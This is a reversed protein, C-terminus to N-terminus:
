DFLTTQVPAAPKAAPEKPTAVATPEPSHAATPQEPQAAPIPKPHRVQDILRRTPDACNKLVWDLYGAEAQQVQEITEGKHKGQAFVKKGDRVALFGDVSIFDFDPRNFEQPDESTEQQAKFVAITARVDALSNHADDFEKGYYRRYVDTLRRSTRAMEILYADYFRYDDYDIALGERQLNYYLIRADFGNGNYSLIDCGQLFAMMQPYIDRLLVGERELTERTIHHVAQADPAITYAGSPKIYWDCAGVEEFTRADVKVLSLQIIWDHQVDLGTTETDFCVLYPKM